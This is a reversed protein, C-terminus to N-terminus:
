LIAIPGQLIAIYFRKQQATPPPSGTRTLGDAEPIVTIPTTMEDKEEDVFHGVRIKSQVIATVHSKSPPVQPDGRVIMSLNPELRVIMLLKPELRVTILGAVPEGAVTIM